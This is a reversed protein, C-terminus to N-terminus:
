MGMSYVTSRSAAFSVGPSNGGTGSDVVTAGTEVDLVRFNENGWSFVLFRGDPSFAAASRAVPMSPVDWGSQVDEKTATDIIFGVRSSGSTRTGALYRMDPSWCITTITGAPATFTPWGSEVQKTAVDIVQVVPAGSSQLRVSVAIKSGNPSWAGRHCVLSPWGEEFTKDPLVVKFGAPTWLLRDGSPEWSTGLGNNQQFSDVPDWTPWGSEVQKTVVDIVTLKQRRTVEPDNEGIAIKSGDWSWSPTPARQGGLWPVDTPWGTEVQRGAVDVVQFSEINRTVVAVRNGDPSWSFNRGGVMGSIAQELQFGDSFDYLRNGHFMVEPFLAELTNPVPQDVSLPERISLSGRAREVTQPEGSTQLVELTSLGAPLAETPLSEKEWAPVPLGRSPATNQELGRPWQQEGDAMARLQVGEGKWDSDFGVGQWAVLVDHWHWTGAVPRRVETGAFSMLNNRVDDVWDLATWEGSPIEQGFTEVTITAPFGGGDRRASQSPGRQGGGIPSTSIKTRGGLTGDGLAERSTLLKELTSRIRADVAQHTWVIHGGPSLAASVTDIRLDGLTWAQDTVETLKGAEVIDGLRYDDYPQPVTIGSSTRFTVQERRTAYLQRVQEAQKLALALTPSQALSLFGERRNSAPPSDDVEAWEYQTEVLLVDYTKGDAEWTRGQMTDIPITVTSTDPTQGRDVGARQFAQLTFTAPDMRFEIPWDRMRDMVTLLTDNGAQVVFEVEDAWAVGDSDVDADFDISLANLSGRAQIEAFLTALVFGHTVGPPDAPNHVSRGASPISRAVVDGVPDDEDDDYESLSWLLGGSSRTNRVEVALVHTVGAVLDLEVTAFGRWDDGEAIQDGDFYAVFLNDGSISLRYTGPGITDADLEFRFYDNGVPNPPEDGWLWEADPDPWGYPFGSRNSRTPNSQTGGSYPIPDDWASDDFDISQWGFVRQRNRLRAQDGTLYVRGHDCLALAGPGAVSIRDSVDGADRRPREIEFAFLPTGDERIQIVNGEAFLDPDAIVAPSNHPIEFNGGGQDLISDVWKLGHRGSDVDLVAVQTTLDDELIRLDISM